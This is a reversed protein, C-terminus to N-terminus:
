AEGLISVGTTTADEDDLLPSTLVTDTRGKRRAEDVNYDASMKQQLQAQKDAWDVDSLTNVEPLTTMTPTTPQNKMMSSMSEMVGGMMGSMAEIMKANSSTTSPYTVSSSSDSGKSGWGM